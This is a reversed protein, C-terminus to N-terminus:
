GQGNQGFVRGERQLELKRAAYVKVPDRPNGDKDKGLIEPTLTLKAHEIEAQTLTVRTQTRPNGQDVPLSRSPTAAVRAPPTRAAPPTPSQRSTARSSAVEPEGSKNETKLGVKENVYDLYRPDNPKLGELEVAATSAAIARRQFAVDSFFRERNQRIWAQNVPDQQRIWAEQQAIPDQPQQQGQDNSRTPDAAAAKDAKDTKTREKELAEKGNRLTVMQATAEGIKLDLQSAAKFDGAELATAKESVLRQAEHEAATLATTITTFEADRAAGQAETTTSKLAKNETQLRNALATADNARREAEARAANAVAESATREGLQRKMEDLAQTPTGNQAGDGAGADDEGGVDVIIDDDDDIVDIEAM